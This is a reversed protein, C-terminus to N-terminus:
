SYDSYKETEQLPQRSVQMGEFSRWIDDVQVGGDVLDRERCVNTPDM